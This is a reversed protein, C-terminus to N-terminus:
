NATAIIGFELDLIFGSTQLRQIKLEDLDM